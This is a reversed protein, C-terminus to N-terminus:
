RDNPNKTPLSRPLVEHYLEARQTVDPANQPMDKGGTYFTSCIPETKSLYLFYVSLKRDPMGKFVGEFVGFPLMSSESPFAAFRHAQSHFAFGRCDRDGAEAAPPPRQRRFQSSLPFPIVDGRSRPIPVAIASILSQGPRSRDCSSRQEKPAPSANM